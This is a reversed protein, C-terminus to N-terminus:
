SKIKELVENQLKHRKMYVFAAHCEKIKYWKNKPHKSLVNVLKDITWKTNGGSMHGIVDMLWKNRIATNYASPNNRQLDKISNYKLAEKSVADFDWKKNKNWGRELNEGFEKHWGYRIAANYASIDNERLDKINDYKLYIEKVVEYTWIIEKGFTKKVMHVVCEEYFDSKLATNYASINASMWDSRKNYKKSEELLAEKTWKKKHPILTLIEKTIKHKICYNYHQRHKERFDEKSSCSKAIKVLEEITYTPWVKKQYVM